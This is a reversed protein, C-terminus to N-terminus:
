LSLKMGIHSAVFGLREYFRHAGARSNDTTLQVLACGEARAMEIARTVLMEGVGRGRCAAAVRVGELQARKSGRRALGPIMTLQLCGVLRGAEEAVLVVNGSQASMEDFARWYADPLPDANEERRAGLEDDALLAVIAPLDGRRAARLVIEGDSTANAM